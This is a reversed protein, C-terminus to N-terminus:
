ASIMSSFKKFPWIEHRPLPLTCVLLLRSIYKYVRLVIIRSSIYSDAELNKNRYRGLSSTWFENNEAALSYYNEDCAVKLQFLLNSLM